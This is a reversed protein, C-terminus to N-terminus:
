MLMKKGGILVFYVGSLGSTRIDKIRTQHVSRRSQINM